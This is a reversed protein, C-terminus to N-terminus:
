SCRTFKIKHLLIIKILERLTRLTSRIPRLRSQPSDIWQVPMEIISYGKQKAIYLIEMDFGWGDICSHSFVDKAASRKYVKFGCQTDRIGPLLVMQIVANAVRSIIVRYWPQKIIINSHAMHRSGIIIDPQEKQLIDIAHTLESFPTSGDADITVLYENNAKKVGSRVAAGKGHNTGLSLITLDKIEDSLGQIVSVTKDTSGDDTVIIEYTYPNNSFYTIIDRITPAIRKAENYAPIIVSFTM